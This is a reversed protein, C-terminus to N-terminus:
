PPFLFSLRLNADLSALMSRNSLRVRRLAYRYIMNRQSVCARREAPKKKTFFIDLDISLSNAARINKSTGEFVEQM